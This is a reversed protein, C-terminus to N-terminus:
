TTALAVDAIAAALRVADRASPAGIADRLDSSPEVRASVCLERAAARRAAHVRARAARDLRALAWADIQFAPVAHRTEDRAIRAQMARMGADRAVRSQWSAVLAGYAERV